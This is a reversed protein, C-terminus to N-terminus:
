YRVWHGRVWVHGRATRQYHGPVWRHGHRVPEYRGPVFVWARGRWEHHGEVWIYGARAPMVVVKAPPPEVPAAVEAYCAPLAVLTSLSLGIIGLRLLRMM